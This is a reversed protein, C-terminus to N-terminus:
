QLPITRSGQSIRRRLSNIGLTTDQVMTDLLRSANTETCPHALYVQISGLIDVKHDKLHDASHLTPRTDERISIVTRHASPIDAEVEATSHHEEMAVLLDALTDHIPVSPFHSQVQVSLPHVGSHVRPYVPLRAQM